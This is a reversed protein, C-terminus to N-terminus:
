PGKFYDIVTSFFGIIGTGLIASMLWFAGAGKYRLVLLEDLKGNMDDVKKELGRVRTELSRIREGQTIKVESM